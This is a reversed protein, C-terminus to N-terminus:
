VKMRRARRSTGRRRVCCSSWRRACGRAMRHRVRQEGLEVLRHKRGRQQKGPSAAAARRDAALDAGRSSCWSSRTMSAPEHPTSGLVTISRVPSAGRTSRSPFPESAGNARRARRIFDRGFISTLELEHLRDGDVRERHQEGDRQVLGRVAVHRPVEAVHGRVRLAADAEIRQAVDVQDARDDHREHMRSRGASLEEEAPRLRHRDIVRRQALRALVHRPHGGRARRRVEDHREDPRQQRADGDISGRLGAEAVGSASIAAAPMTTLRTNM